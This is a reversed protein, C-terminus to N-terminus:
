SMVVTVDCRGWGAGTNLGLGLVEEEIGYREAVREQKLSTRERGKEKRGRLDDMELWDIYADDM